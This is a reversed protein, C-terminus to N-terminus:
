GGNNNPIHIRIDKKSLRSKDNEGSATYSLIERIMNGLAKKQEMPLLVLDEGARVLDTVRDVDYWEYTTGVKTGSDRFKEMLSSFVAETGWPIDSMPPLPVRSGIAYVGGDTCPGLVVEEVSLKKNVDEIYAVPLSPADSGIFVVREYGYDRLTVNTQMMREGLNGKIQPIVLDHRTFYDGAWDADGPDSPCISTDFSSSLEDLDDRLSELCGEYFRRAAVTGISRALRTKVRQTEPCKCYVALASRKEKEDVKDM